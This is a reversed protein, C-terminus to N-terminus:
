AAQNPMCCAKAVKPAIVDTGYVTSEGTTLFTEWEIGQPDHTWRKESQAYCCTTEGEEIVPGEAKKLRGYVETLEARDEVQFEASGGAAVFARMQELSIPKTDDM